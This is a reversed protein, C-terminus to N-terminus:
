SISVIATWPRALRLGFATSQTFGAPGEFPQLELQFHMNKHMSISHIYHIHIYHTYIYIHVYLIYIYKYISIYMYYIYIYVYSYQLVVTTLAGYGLKFNTKRGHHNGDMLGASRSRSTTVKHGEPSKKM